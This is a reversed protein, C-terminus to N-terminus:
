AGADAGKLRALIRRREEPTNANTLPAEDDLVVQAVDSNILVKRPCAYGISLFRLMRQYARPEYLAILPEPFPKSRGRVATALRRSERRNLVQEVTPRSVLPLDCALVLWAAAPDTLFATAIAGLPGLGVFRDEIEGAGGTSKSVSIFTPLGLQECVARLRDVETQGDRYVLSGKDKGMRTSKGGALILAKVPPRIAEGIGSLLEFALRDFAAEPWAEPLDPHDDQLWRPLQGAHDIMVVAAVDTLQTRRRELTGAKKKDIFVIQRAAPYHNGNVLVLDYQSGLLKDDYENWGTADRLVKDGYQRRGGEVARGHEGTVTLVNLQPSLRERLRELAADIVVCTSGVLAVETRGFNGLAPREIPPHKHHTM